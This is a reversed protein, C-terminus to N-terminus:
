EGRVLGIFMEELTVPSESFESFGHARLHDMGGGATDVLIRWRSGEHKQVHLGHGRLSAAGDASFCDVMRFRDVLEATSGELLMKGEHIVGLHDTFREIDDLNHSSILVTRKEDQVANLLEEFVEQKSVADLGALPEDLLLLDPRHSLAVILGLKTRSGYSLTGIKEEWGIKLRKMLDFCYQDDWDAYFGRVFSLLRKVKGWATYVLDPSVYGVRRKVAVEKKLHDLGFVRIQGADKAGMGMILDITTTKGAGNAGILGYIAGTPVAIDIPGLKFGRFSKELGRIELAADSM